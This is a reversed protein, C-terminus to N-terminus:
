KLVNRKCYEHIEYFKSRVLHYAEDKINEDVHKFSNLTTYLINFLIEIMKHIWTIHIMLLM